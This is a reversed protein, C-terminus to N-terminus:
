YSKQSYIGWETCILFPPIIVSSVIYKSKRNLEMDTAAYIKVVFPDFAERVFVAAYNGKGVLTWNKPVNNVVVPEDFNESHVTVAPLLELM